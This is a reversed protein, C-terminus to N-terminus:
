RRIPVQREFNSKGRTGKITTNGDINYNRLQSNVSIESKVEGITMALQQKTIGNSAVGSSIDINSRGYNSEIPANTPFISLTKKSDATINVQLTLSYEGQNGGDVTINFKEQDKGYNILNDIRTGNEAVDELGFMYNSNDVDSTKADSTYMTAVDSALAFGALANDEQTKNEDGKLKLGSIMFNVDEGGKSAKVTTKYVIGHHDNSGAKVKGFEIDTYNEYLNNLTIYEGKENAVMISNEATHPESENQFGGDRKWTVSEIDEVTSLNGYSNDFLSTFDKLTGGKLSKTLNDTHTNVPHDPNSFTFYSEFTQINGADLQERRHNMFDMGLSTLNRNANDIQQQETPLRTGGWNGRPSSTPTLGLFGKAFNGARAGLGEDNVQFIGEMVEEQSIGLDNSLNDISEQNEVIFSSWAKRNIGYMSADTVMQQDTASTLDRQLDNTRLWNAKLNSVQSDIKGKDYDKNIVAVESFLANAYELDFEGTNPNTFANFDLTGATTTTPTRNQALSKGILSKGIDILSTFPLSDEAVAYNANLSEKSATVNDKAAVNARGISAYSEPIIDSGRNSLITTSGGISLAKPILNNVVATNEAKVKAAKARRDEARITAAERLGMVYSTNQMYKTSEKKEQRVKDLMQGMFFDSFGEESGFRDAYTQDNGFERNDLLATPNNALFTDRVRPDRSLELLREQPLTKMAVTVAQLYEPHGPAVSLAGTYQEIVPALEAMQLELNKDYDDAKLVNTKISDPSRWKGDKYLPINNVNSLTIAEAGYQTQLQQQIKSQEQQTKSANVYPHLRAYDIASVVDHAGASLNGSHAKVVENYKSNIENLYMNKAEADLGRDNAVEQLASSWGAKSADHRKQDELAKRDFYSVDIPQYTNQREKLFTIPM